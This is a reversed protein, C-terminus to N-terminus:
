RIVLQEQFQGQFQRQQQWLLQCQFNSELHTTSFALPSPPWESAEKNPSAWAIALAIAVPSAHPTAGLKAM